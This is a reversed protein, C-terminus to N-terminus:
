GQDRSESSTGVQRYYRVFVVLSLCCWLGLRLWMAAPIFAACLFLAAFLSWSSSVWSRLTFLRAEHSVWVMCVAYSLSTMLSIFTLTVFPDANKFLMCWVVNAGINLLAAIYIILSYKWNKELYTVRPTSVYLAMKFFYLLTLPAVIAVVGHYQPAIFYRGFLRLTVVQPLLMMLLSIAAAFLTILRLAFNRLEQDHSTKERAFRFYYPFWMSNFAEALFSGVLAVKAGAAYFGNAQQGLLFYVVYRDSLDILFIGFAVATMPMGLRLLPGVFSSSPMLRPLFGDFACCLVCEAAAAIAEAMIICYLGPLRRRLLLFLVSVMIIIRATRALSFLAVKERFRLSVKPVMSLIESGCHLILWISLQRVLPSVALVHSLGYFVIGLVLSVQALLSFSTDKLEKMERGEDAKFRVLIAAPLGLPLLVIVLMLTTTIVAYLGFEGPSLIRTYLAILFFRVAATFVDAAGYLLSGKALHFFSLRSPTKV